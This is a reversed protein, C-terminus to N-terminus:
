EGKKEEKQANLYKFIVYAYKNLQKIEESFVKNAERQEIFNLNCALILLLMAVWIIELNIISLLIAMIDLVISIKEFKNSITWIHKIFEKM